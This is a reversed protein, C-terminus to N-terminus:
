RDRAHKIREMEVYAEQYRNKCASQLTMYPAIAFIAGEDDKTVNGHFAVWDRCTHIAFRYQRVFPTYRAPYPVTETAELFKDLKANAEDVDTDNNPRLGGVSNFLDDLWGTATVAFTDTMPVPGVEVSLVGTPVFTVTLTRTVGDIEVAVTDVVIDKAGGQALALSAGAATVVIVGVLLAILRRM